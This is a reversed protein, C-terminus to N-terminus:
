GRFRVNRTAVLIHALHWYCVNRIKLEGAAGRPVDV